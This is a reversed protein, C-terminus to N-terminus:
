KEKRFTEAKPCTAFHSTHRKFDFTDDEPKVTNADTPMKGGRKTLLFVIEKGCARCKM